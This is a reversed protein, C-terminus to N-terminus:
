TRHPSKNKDLYSFDPCLLTNCTVDKGNFEVINRKESFLIYISFIQVHGFNRSLARTGKM